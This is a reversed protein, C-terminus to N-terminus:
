CVVIGLMELLQVLEALAISAITKMEYCCDELEELKANHLRTVEQAQGNESM